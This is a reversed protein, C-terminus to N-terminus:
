PEVYGPAQFEQTQTLTADSDFDQMGRAEVQGFAFDSDEDLVSWASDPPSHELPKESSSQSGMFDQELFVQKRPRAAYEAQKRPSPSPVLEFSGGFTLRRRQQRFNIQTAELITPQRMRKVKEASLVLASSSSSSSPKRPHRSSLKSVAKSAKRTMNMIQVNDSRAATAVQPSFFDHM